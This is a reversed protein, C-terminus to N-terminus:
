SMLSRHSATPKSKDKWHPSDTPTGSTSPGLTGSPSPSPQAGVGERVVVECTVSNTRLSPPSFTAGGGLASAILRPLPSSPSWDPILTCSQAPSQPTIVLIKGLPYGSISISSRGSPDEPTPTPTPSYGPLQTKFATSSAGAALQDSLKAYNRTEAASSPLNPQLRTISHLYFFSTKTAHNVHHHPSTVLHPCTCTLFLRLILM